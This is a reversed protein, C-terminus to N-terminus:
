YVYDCLAYKLGNKYKVQICSLFISIEKLRKPIEEIAKKINQNRKLYDNIEKLNSKGIGNYDLDLIQLTTNMKLAESMYASGEEGLGNNWLHLTQLTTNMKLKECLQKIEYSTLNKCSLDIKTKTEDLIAM